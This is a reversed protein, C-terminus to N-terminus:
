VVVPRKSGALQRQKLRSFTRRRYLFLLFGAIVILLLYVELPTGWIINMSDWSCKCASRVLTGRRDVEPDLIFDVNTGSEELWIVTTKSKYGRVIATVACVM